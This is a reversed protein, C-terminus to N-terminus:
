HAFYKRPEEACSKLLQERTIGSQGIMPELAQRVEPLLDAWRLTRSNQSAGNVGSTETMAPPRERRTTFIEPYERRIRDKAEELLERGILTSGAQRMVWLKETLVQQMRHDKAWENEAVFEGWIRNAAPDVQPRQADQTPKVVKKVTSEILQKDLEGVKKWDGIEQAQQREFQLTELSLAEGQEARARDAAELRELRTLLARNEDRLSRNEKQVLPLVSDRFHLFEEAPKWKKPDGKWQEKPVWGAATAAGVAETDAGSVAGAGANADAPSPVGAAADDTVVVEANESLVVTVEPDNPDHEAM